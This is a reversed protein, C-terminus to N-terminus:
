LRRTSRLLIPYHLCIFFKPIDKDYIATKILNTTDSAIKIGFKAMFVLNFSM